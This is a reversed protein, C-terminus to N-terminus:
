RGVLDELYALGPREWRERLAAFVQWAEPGPWDEPLLTAPLGPDIRPLLRWDDVLHLYGAFAASGPGADAAPRGSTEVAGSGAEAATSTGSGGARDRWSDLFREYHVRLASLDWWQAVDPADVSAARFWIVYTDLGGAVLLERAPLELAAPAVWVGPGVTGFGLWGLQARLQHRQHRRDEPVSFVALVWGDAPDAQGYRFIRRDGPALDAHGTATLAYGAASGRKEAAVFGRSKLRVLAQRVAPESVGAVGLCDILDAVAIWGGIRRLYCGAFTVIMSSPSGARDPPLSEASVAM